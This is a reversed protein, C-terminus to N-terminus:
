RHHITFLFGLWPWLLWASLGVVLTWRGPHFVNLLPLAALAAFALVFVLNAALSHYPLRSVATVAALPGGLTCLVQEPSFRMSGYGWLIGFALAESTAWSSAAIGWAPGPTTAASV